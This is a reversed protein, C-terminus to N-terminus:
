RYYCYGHHCYRRHPYLWYPGVCFRYWHYGTEGLRYCSTMEIPSVASIATGISRGVAAKAGTSSLSGTSVAILVALLISVKRM